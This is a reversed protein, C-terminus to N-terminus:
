RYSYRGGVAPGSIGCWDRGSTPSIVYANALM